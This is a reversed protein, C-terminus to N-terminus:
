GSNMPSSTVIIFTNINGNYYVNLHSLRSLSHKKLFGIKELTHKSISNNNTLCQVWYYILSLQSLDNMGLDYIIVLITTGHVSWLKFNM